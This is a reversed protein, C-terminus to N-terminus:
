ERIFGCAAQDLNLYRNVTIPINSQALWRDTAKESETGRVVGLTRSALSLLNPYSADSRIMVSQSSIYFTQSFTFDSDLERRHSRPIFLVDVQGGQLLEFANQRNVQLFEADVEWYETMKRAIDALYGSVEGRIDLQSFPPANYYVGIRIANSQQITAIRSVTSVPVTDVVESTTPVLTPPVLTPIPENQALGVNISLIFLSLVSLLLTGSQRLRTM